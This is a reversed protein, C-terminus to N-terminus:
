GPLPLCINSYHAWGRCMEGKEKNSDVKKVEGKNKDKEVHGKANSNAQLGGGQWTLININIDSIITRIINGIITNNISILM